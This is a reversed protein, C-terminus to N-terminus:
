KPTSRSRDLRSPETSGFSVSSMRAATTLPATMPTSPPSTPRIRPESRIGARSLLTPSVACRATPVFRTTPTHTPTAPTIPCAGSPTSQSSSASPPAADIGPATIPARRVPLSEVSWSIRAIPPSKTTAPTPIRILAADAYSENM